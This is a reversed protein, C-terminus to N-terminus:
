RLWEQFTQQIQGAIVKAQKEINQQLDGLQANVALLGVKKLILIAIQETVSAPDTVNKLEANRVNVHIRKEQVEPKGSEVYRADGISVIVKDVLIPVRRAKPKPPSPRPSEPGPDRPAPAQGPTQKQAAKQKENLLRLMENLNIKGQANREIAIDEVALRVERVHIKGKFLALPDAEFYLEPVDALTKEKFGPPNHIKIGYLGLRLPYPRFSFRNVSVKVGVAQELLNASVASVAAECSLFAALLAGILILWRKRPFVTNLLLRLPIM